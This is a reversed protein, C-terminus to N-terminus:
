SPSQGAHRVNLLVASCGECRMVAVTKAVSPETVTQTCQPLFFPRMLSQGALYFFCLVCWCRHTLSRQRLLCCCEGKSRRHIGLQEASVAGREPPAQSIQIPSFFITPHSCLVFVCVGTGSFTDALFNVSHQEMSTQTPKVTTNKTQKRRKFYLKTHGHYNM